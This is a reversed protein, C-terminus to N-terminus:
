SLNIFKNYESLTFWYESPKGIEKTMVDQLRLMFEPYSGAVKDQEYGVLKIKPKIDPWLAQHIPVRSSWCSQRGHLQDSLLQQMLPLNNFAPILNSTFEYWDCISERGQNYLYMSCSHGEEGLVFRWESKKSYDSALDRKWYPEADGMVPINDLYDFFKLHPLRSARTTNSKKFYDYADNEYYHELNFDIIKYPINLSKCIETASVVDRYNYNNEYKFIFTNHSIGLDKFTRVVVESDIGGSLLVDFPESYTDRMAIANNYIEEYYSKVPTHSIINAQIKFISKKTDRKGYKIGDFTWTLWDNLTPSRM